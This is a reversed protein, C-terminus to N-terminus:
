CYPCDKKNKCVVGEKKVSGEGANTIIGGPIEM